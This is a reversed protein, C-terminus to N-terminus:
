WQNHGRTNSDARMFLDYEREGIRVALDLNGSEFFSDFSLPPSQFCGKDVNSVPNVEATSCSKGYFYSSWIQYKSLFMGGSKFDYTNPSSFSSHLLYSDRPRFGRYVLSYSSKLEESNHEFVERVTDSLQDEMVIPIPAVASVKPM